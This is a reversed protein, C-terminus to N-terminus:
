RTCTFIASFDSLDEILNIRDWRECKDTFIDSLVLLYDEFVALNSESGHWEIDEFVAESWSM